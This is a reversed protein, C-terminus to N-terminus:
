VPDEDGPEVAQFDAPGLGEACLAFRLADSEGRLEEWLDVLEERLTPEFAV